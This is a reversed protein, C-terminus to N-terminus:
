FQTEPHFKVKIYISRTAHNNAYSKISIVKYAELSLHECEVVKGQAKSKPLMGTTLKEPKYAQMYIHTHSHSNPFAHPLAQIPTHDKQIRNRYRYILTYDSPHPCGGTLLGARTDGELFLPFPVKYLPRHLAAIRTGTVGEGGGQRGRMKFLRAIGRLFLKHENSRM